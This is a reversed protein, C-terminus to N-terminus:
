SRTWKRSFPPRPGSARPWPSSCPRAAPDGAPRLRRLVEFLAAEPLAADLVLLDADMPLERPSVGVLGVVAQAEVAALIRSPITAGVVLASPRVGTDAEAAEGSRPVAAPWPSTSLASSVRSKM